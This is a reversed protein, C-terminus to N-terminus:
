RYTQIAPDDLHPVANFSSLTFRERSFLFENFSSNQAM